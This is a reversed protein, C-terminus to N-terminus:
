EPRGESRRRRNTAAFRGFEIPDDPSARIAKDFYELSKDYQGQMEYAWGLSATAYVNSPDLALAREDEAVAEETRGQFRLIMGKTSHPWTWDPDLAIAKSESEYARQLDGKPDSSLGAQYLVLFKGGICEPRPCQQSRHGAGTRLARTGCGGGQRDM